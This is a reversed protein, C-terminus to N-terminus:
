YLHRLGLVVVVAKLCSVSKGAYIIFVESKWRLLLEDEKWLALPRFVRVDSKFLLDKRISETSVRHLKIWDEAAYDKLPVM